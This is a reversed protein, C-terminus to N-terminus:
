NLTISIINGLVLQAKQPQFSPILSLAILLFAGGQESTSSMALLILQVILQAKSVVHQYTDTDYM